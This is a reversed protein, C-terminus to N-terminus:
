NSTKETESVIDEGKISLIWALSTAFLFMLIICGGIEFWEILPHRFDPISEPVTLQNYILMFAVLAPFICSLLYVLWQPPESQQIDTTEEREPATKIAWALMSFAIISALSMCTYAMAKNFDSITRDADDIAFYVSAFSLVLLFVIGIPAIIREFKTM